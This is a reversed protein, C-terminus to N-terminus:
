PLGVVRVPISTNATADDGLQGNTNGGWCEVTGDSLVACTHYMGASISRANTILSVLVPIPTPRDANAMGSGLRGEGNYGWCKVTGDSLLACSHFGGASISIANTIGSVQVPTAGSGIGGGTLVIAGWCKVTGDSLLACTHGDGASISSANTIDSVQVPTSSYGGWAPDGLEGFWDNGWCKATGDSLVACTHDGGVSM